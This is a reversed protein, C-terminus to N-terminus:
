PPSSVGKNGQNSVALANGKLVAFCISNKLEVKFRGRLVGKPLGDSRQQQRKQNDKFQEVICELLRKMDKNMFGLASIVPFLFTPQFKLRREEVLREAVSILAKYRRVKAGVIKQFAPSEEPLKTVEQLFKLTDSAYTSCTEQVIAHDFWFERPRDRPSSFPFRLDFRITANNDDERRVVSVPFKERLQALEAKQIQGRPITMMIDLLKMALKQREEAEQQNLRGPFLSSLDEKSLYGGLLSYTSPQKTPNGGARRYSKELAKELITAKQAKVGPHCVLGHNGASDLEAGKKQCSSNACLQVECGCKSESIEGDNNKLPPLCVFQRAVITFETKTLRTDIQTLDATFLNSLVSAGPRRLSALLVKEATSAHEVEHALFAKHAIESVIELFEQQLKLKKDDEFLDKFFSSDSLVEPEGIPILEGRRSEKLYSPGGLAALTLEYAEASQQKM